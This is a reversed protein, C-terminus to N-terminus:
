LSQLLEKVRNGDARSGFHALIDRMTMMKNKYQSFDINAEIWHRIEEDTAAKPTYEELIEIYRTDEHAGAHALTERESKILKKIIRIVDDDPLTKNEARAFEGMIIRLAGKKEEDKQKMALMLDKKVQEQITM